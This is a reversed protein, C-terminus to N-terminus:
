RTLEELGGAFLFCPAYLYCHFESIKRTLLDYHMHDETGFVSRLRLTVRVSSSARCPNLRPYEALGWDYDFYAKVAPWYRGGYEPLSGL